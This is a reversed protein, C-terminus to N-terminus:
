YKHGRHVAVVGGSMNIYDCDELGADEMMQKLTDQDPHMRISEALYRYSDADNAVLKGMRPLIQFSYLEYLPRLPAVYLRSFELVLVFGGPRLVRRIEALAAPKDTVNRLGFAMTIRDFHNDPFPLKEADALVYEINGVLGEDLLRSRGQALMADNIDSMVVRGRPGVKRAMLRTLDGTGAALDLVQHGPRLSAMNVTQRKWLRHLCASMLDNMLDYRGAVSRFVDRVRHTKEERPVQRFGFDTSGEGDVKDTM